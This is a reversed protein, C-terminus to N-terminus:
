RPLSLKAWRQHWPGSGLLGIWALGLWALWSLWALWARLANCRMSIHARDASFPFLHTQVSVRWVVCDWWCERSATAAIHASTNDNNGPLQLQLYAVPMWADDDHDDDGEHLLAVAVALASRRRIYWVANYTYTHHIHTRAHTHTHKHIHQQLEEVEELSVYYRLRHRWCRRSHDLCSTGDDNIAFPFWIRNTNLCWSSAAYAACILSRCETM